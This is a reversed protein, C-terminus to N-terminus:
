LTYDFVDGMALSASAVGSCKLPIQQFPNISLYQHFFVGYYM